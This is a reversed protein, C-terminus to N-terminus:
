ILTSEYNYMHLFRTVAYAFTLIMALVYLTARVFSRHKRDGKGYNFPMQDPFPDFKKIVDKLTERKPVWTKSYSASPIEQKHRQPM